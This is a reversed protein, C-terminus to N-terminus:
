IEFQHIIFQKKGFKRSNIEMFVLNISAFPLSNILSPQGIFPLKLDLFANKAKTNLYRILVESTQQLQM